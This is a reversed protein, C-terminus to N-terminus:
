RIITDRDYANCIYVNRQIVAFLKVNIYWVLM